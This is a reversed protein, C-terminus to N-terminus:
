KQLTLRRTKQYEDTRLSYFYLGSSLRKPNWSIQHEGATQFDQILTEVEQGMTNYIRLTVNTSIPLRYKITTLPNFPNPYNQCLEYSNIIQSFLPEVATYPVPYGANNWATIILTALKNSASYFLRITFNKTLEWLKSYYENSITSGTIATALSDTFLLSDVYAYNDYIFTFVFDSVNQIHGVSSGGYVIEDAYLDLMAIEYRGHVGYQNTYQGNYNRTLHLPMHGDGVYHGLDAAILMADHFQLRSFASELSDFAALIAWPLIGQAMVFDYGHLAVLSDFDQSIKGTAFFEPYNDIDIYHKNGEDPDNAKRDDADSGHAALSDAWDSFVNMEPPFSLVSNKNIIIHGTRGWGILFISLLLIILIHRNKM